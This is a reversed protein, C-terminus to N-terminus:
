KRDVSQRQVSASQELRDLREKLIQNEERLLKLEERIREDESSASDMMSKLEKIGEVILPIVSGYSVSKIGESNSKVLLPEHKEVEQAIFGLAKEGNNKWVYQHGKFRLIRTLPNEIPTIDRKLRRDSNYYYVPASVASSFTVSGDAEIAMRAAGGKFLAWRSDIGGTVHIDGDANVGFTNSVSLLQNPATTGIGVEGLTSMTLHATNNFKIQLPRNGFNMITNTPSGQFKVEAANTNDRLHAIETGSTLVHFKSSPITTGIGVNGGAVRMVESANNFISVVGNAAGSGPSFIGTDGDPGFAFGVVSADSSPIGQLSRFQSSNTQGNVDLRATPSVTGIGVNGNGEIRMRELNSTFLRLPSNLNNNIDLGNTSVILHANTTSGNFSTLRVGGGWNNDLSSGAIVLAKDNQANSVIHLKQSPTLTGIGINGTPGLAMSIIDNEGRDRFFRLYESGAPGWSDIEWAGIGTGDDFTIQGGETASQKALRINGSQPALPASVDMPARPTATGVGVNGGVFFIDNGNAALQWLSDMNNVYAYCSAINAGSTTYVLKLSKTIEEKVAAKSRSFSINLMTENSALGPAAKSLRYSLVKVNGPLFTNVQYVNQPVGSITKKLTTVSGGNPPQPTPSTSGFSNQCNTSDSLVGRIQSLVTVVEYNAEVTKQAENQTKFMTMGAVALGGLLGTAVMIEVLTMGEQGLSKKIM